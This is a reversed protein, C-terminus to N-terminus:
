AAALQTDLGVARGFTRAVAATMCGRYAIDMLAATEVRDATISPQWGPTGANEFGLERLAPDLLEERLLACRQMAATAQSAGSTSSSRFALRWVLRHQIALLDASHPLADAVTLLAPDIPLAAFFPEAASGDVLVAAPDEPDASATYGTPIDAQLELLLAAASSAPTEAPAATHSIPQATLSEGAFFDVGVTGPGAAVVTYRQQQIQTYRIRGVTSLPVISLPSIQIKPSPGRAAGLERQPVLRVDGDAFGTARRAWSILADEVPVWAIPDTSM